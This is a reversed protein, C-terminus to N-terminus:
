KNQLQFTNSKIETKEKTKTHTYGFSSTERIKDWDDNFFLNVSTVNLDDIPKFLNEKSKPMEKTHYIQVYRAAKSKDIASPNIQLSQAMMESTVAKAQKRRKNGRYQFRKKNYYGWGIFAVVLTLIMGGSSLLFMYLSTGLTKIEEESKNYFINTDFFNFLILAALPYFIYFWLGWLMLTLLLDRLQYFISISNKVIYHGKERKLKKAM